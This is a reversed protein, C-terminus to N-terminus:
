GAMMGLSRSPSLSLCRAGSAVDDDLWSQHGSQGDGAPSGEGDDGALRQDRVVRGALDEDTLRFCRINQKM